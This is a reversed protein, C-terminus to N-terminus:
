YIEKGIQEGSTELHQVTVPNLLKCFYERWRNLISKQHKLLVSNADEISTAVPTQKGHLRRIIQWFVKNASRYDTDLKQGFEKWSKEKSQKVITAATMRAACYRLRLQESSKNTLWARFATKKACIAEKVDQNWRATRKENSMQSEVHTCGCNAVASTIVASKFLDSLRLM